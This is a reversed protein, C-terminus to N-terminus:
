GLSNSSLSKSYFGELELLKIKNQIGAAYGTLKDDKGLVRHCPIIIIIPNHGVAGGIAQASMSHIGRNQAIRMAIEGYTMTEGYPIECLIKWVDQRFANGIPALSLDSIPPKKGDFYKDLWLKTQYFIELNDKIVLEEKFSELFYKQGELYAGVLHSTDSVLTMKGLPSNYITKYFM